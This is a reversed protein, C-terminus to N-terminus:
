GAAAAALVVLLALPAPPAGGPAAGARAVRVLTDRGRATCCSETM